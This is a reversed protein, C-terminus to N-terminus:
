RAASTGSNSGQPAGSERLLRLAELRGPFPRGSDVAAQLESRALAPHNDHAHVMALHFHAAPEEPAARVAAQLLDRGRQIQGARFHLWGLIDLLAPDSPDDGGIDRLIERVRQMSAPDDPQTAAVAALRYQVVDLDPRRSLVDQYIRMAEAPRGLDADLRALFLQLDVDRPFREVGDAAIALADPARDLELFYAALQRYPVASRPQLALGRRLAAEAKDPDRADVFARAAMARAFAFGPDREALVMLQEAAFGAGKERSWAKALATAVVPSRPAVALAERLNREAGEPNGRALELIGALFPPFATGAFAGRASDVVREGSGWDQQRLRQELAQRLRALRGPWHERALADLADAGAEMEARVRASPVKAASQEGPKAAERRAALADLRAGYLRGVRQRIEARLEHADARGPAIAIAKDLAAEPAAVLGGKAMMGALAIWGEPDEPHLETFSESELFAVEWNGASLEMAALQRRAEADDPRLRLAARFDKRAEDLERAAVHSAASKLRLAARFDTMLRSRWATPFSLLAVLAIGAAAWSRGRVAKLRQRIM